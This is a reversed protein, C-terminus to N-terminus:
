KDKNISAALIAIMHKIESSTFAFGMDTAEKEILIKLEKPDSPLEEREALYSCIIDAKM